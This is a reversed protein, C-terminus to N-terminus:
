PLLELLSCFVPFINVRLIVMHVQRELAKGQLMRESGQRKESEREREREGFILM